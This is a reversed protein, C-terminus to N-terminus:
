PLQCFCHYYLNRPDNLKAMWGLDAEVTDLMRAVWAPTVRGFSWDGAGTLGRAVIALQLALRERWTLEPEVFQVNYADEDLGALEAAAAIADDLSGISDILGLELADSGIWVRGQAINQVRDLSLDRSASVKGLFVRYAEEVGLQFLQRADDGLERDLRVQGSLDTTGYGDINVGLSGLARQFTPILAGVGISGTITSESAWIEDAPMSIYYGGSAATASMSAILPKGMAKLRELETFVVDSAFMSGGPSDVRLVLAQISEDDAVQAVLQALTDGGITGRPAEGDVIEGSAVLVGVRAENEEPGQEEIIANLYAGMGIASFTEDDSDSPGVIEMVREVYARRDGLFDVLGADLAMTGTNGGAATMNELFDNAFADISGDELGRAGEVDSVYASWLAALWRESSERDEDSMDNRTFPEVFSKFKGVRFVNVDIKLKDLAGKLFTRYYGYGDIFVLGLDHLYIEDAHAALYYQDQTFNDGVAIVPKGAERIRELSDGIAQLKALGGGALRDLDLVVAQIRDDDVATELSDVVDHVLTQGMDVGRAEALAREVPDGKLQEVLLGSPAIVLAASDPVELESVSLGAVILAIIFFMILLQVFRRVNNLAAWIFKLVRM